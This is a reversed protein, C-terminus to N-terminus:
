VIILLYLIPNDLRHTLCVVFTLINYMYMYMYTGREETEMLMSLDVDLHEDWHVVPYALLNIM